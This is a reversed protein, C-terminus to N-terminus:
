MKWNVFITFIFSIYKVLPVSDLKLNIKRTLIAWRAKILGFEWEILNQAAWVMADFVAENNSQYHSYGKLCFSRLTYAPNDIKYCLDECYSSM